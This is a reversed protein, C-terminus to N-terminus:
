RSLHRYLICQSHRHKLRDDWGHTYQSRGHGQTVWVVLESNVVDLVDCRQRVELVSLYCVSVSQRWQLGRLGRTNVHTRWSIQDTMGETVVLPSLDGDSHLKWTWVNDRCLSERAALLLNYYSTLKVTQHNTETLSIPWHTLIRGLPLSVLRRPTHIPIICILDLDELWVLFFVQLPVFRFGWSSGCLLVRRGPISPRSVCKVDMVHCCFIISLCRNFSTFDLPRHSCIHVM